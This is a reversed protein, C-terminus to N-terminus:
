ETGMFVVRGTQAFGQMARSFLSFSSADDNMLLAYQDM